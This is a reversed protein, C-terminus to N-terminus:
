GEGPTGTELRANQQGGGHETGAPHSRLGENSAETSYTTEKITTYDSYSSEDIKGLYYYVKDEEGLLLTIARSEKGQTGHRRIGGGSPMAIDM